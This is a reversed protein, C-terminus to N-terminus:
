PELEVPDPDVTLWGEDVGEVVGLEVLLVVELVGDVEGVPAV